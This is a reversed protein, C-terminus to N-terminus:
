KFFEKFVADMESTGRNKKGLGMRGGSSRMSPLMSKKKGEGAPKGLLQGSLIRRVGVIPFGYIASLLDVGGTVKKEFTKGTMIKALDKFYADLPTLETWRKGAAMQVIKNAPVLGQSMQELIAEVWERVDKPLRQKDVAFVALAPLITWFILKSIAQENSYQGKKMKGAMEFQLNFFKNVHGQVFTLLKQYEPGRFMSPLDLTDGMPQTRRVVRDAEKVAGIEDVGAKISQQYSGLWVIAATYRDAIQIPLMSWEKFAQYGTAAKGFKEYLKRKALIERFEREQTMSRFKMIVSKKIVFDMMEKPHRGFMLFAKMTEQKGAMEMGQLLAIPQKLVTRFNWGLVTTGYNTRIWKSLGDVWSRGWDAGDFAVDQLHKQLISYYRRGYTETIASKIEPNSLYKNADRVAESFAIYHEVKQLNSYVKQVFGFQGLELKSRLREQTFGKDVSPRYRKGRQLIDVEPDLGMIPFYNEVKPLHVGNIREYPAAIRPHQYESYYEFLDQAMAKENDDLFNTVDQIDQDTIGSAQIHRLNDENLSEIYIDMAVEKTMKPFRGVQYQKVFWEPKLAPKLIDALKAESEHINVSKINRADNLNDWVVRTSIGATNYNDLINYMLEPRLNELILNHISEKSLKIISKDQEKLYTEISELPKAEKGGTITSVGEKLVESFKKEQMSRILKDKLMGQHYLRMIEQHIDQLDEFTMDNLPIRHLMDLAEQPIQIEQGESEMKEAFRRMSERKMLTKETRKSFDFNSKIEEIMDKYELPLSQTPMSNIQSVMKVIEKKVRAQEKALAKKQAWEQTMKGVLTDHKEQQEELAYKKELKALLEDVQQKSKNSEKIEKIEANKRDEMEEAGSRFGSAEAKEEYKLIEGVKMDVVKNKIIDMSQRNLMMDAIQGNLDDYKNQLTRLRAKDATIPLGSDAQKNISRQLIQLQKEVSLSESQLQKIRAKIFRGPVNDGFDFSTGPEDAPPKEPPAPITEKEFKELSFKEELPQKIKLAQIFAQGESQGERYGQIMGQSATDAAVKSFDVGGKKLLKGLGHQKFDEDPDFGARKISEPDIGGHTKSVYSILNTPAKGKGKLEKVQPILETSHSGGYYLDAEERSIKKGLSTIFFGEKIRDVKSINKGEKAAKEIAEIHNKGTYLEGDIIIAAKVVKDQRPGVAGFENKLIKLGTAEEINSGFLKWYKAKDRNEWLTTAMKQDVQAESMGRETAMAKVASAWRDTNRFRNFWQTFQQNRSLLQQIPMRTAEKPAGALEVFDRLLHPTAIALEAMTGILGATVWDVKPYAKMMAVSVPETKDPELAGKKASDIVNSIWDKNETYAASAFGRAANLIVFPDILPKVSEPIQPGLSPAKKGEQRSVLEVTARAREVETLPRHYSTDPNAILRPIDSYEKAPQSTGFDFEGTFQPEGFENNSIPKATDLDISKMPPM